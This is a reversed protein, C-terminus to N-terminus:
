KPQTKEMKQYAKSVLLVGLDNCDVKSKIQRKIKKFGTFVNKTMNEKNEQRIPSQVKSAVLKRFSLM